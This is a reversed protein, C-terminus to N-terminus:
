SLWSNFVIDIIPLRECIVSISLEHSRPPNTASVAELIPSWGYIFPEQVLEVHNRSNTSLGRLLDIGLGLNCIYLRIHVKTAKDSLENIREQLERVVAGYTSTKLQSSLSIRKHRVLTKRSNPVLKLIMGIWGSSSSYEGIDGKSRCLSALQKQWLRECKAEVDMLRVRPASDELIFSQHDSWEDISKRKPLKASWDKLDDIHSVSIIKNVKKSASRESGVIFFYQTQNVGFLKELFVDFKFECPPSYHRDKLLETLQDIRHLDAFTVAEDPSMGHTLEAQLYITSLFKERSYRTPLMDELCRRVYIPEVSLGECSRDDARSVGKSM